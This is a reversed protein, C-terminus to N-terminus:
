HDPELSLELLHVLAGAAGALPRHEGLAGAGLDLREIPLALGVVAGGVEHDLRLAEAHVLGDAADQLREPLGMACANLSRSAAPGSRQSPAMPVRKYARPTGSSAQKSTSFTFLGPSTCAIWESYMATPASQMSVLVNPALRNLSATWPRSDRTRSILRRPTLSARSTRSAMPRSTSTRPERPGSPLYRAGRP